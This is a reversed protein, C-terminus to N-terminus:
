IIQASPVYSSHSLSQPVMRAADDVQVERSSLTPLMGIHFVSPRRQLMSLVERDMSRSRLIAEELLEFEAPALEAQCVEAMSQDWQQVVKRYQLWHEEKPKCKARLDDRDLLSTDEEHAKIAKKLMLDFQRATLPAEHNMAAFKAGKPVYAEPRLLSQSGAPEPSDEKPAVSGVYFWKQRLVDDSIVSMRVDGVWQLHERLIDLGSATGSSLFLRMAITRRTGIKLGRDHGDDEGEEDKPAGSSKGRSRRQRKAPAETAYSEVDPHENYAQMMADLQRLLAAAAVPTSGIHLGAYEVVMGIWEVTNVPLAQAAQNQRAAQAILAARESGDGHLEFSTPIAMLSEVLDVVAPDKPPLDKVRHLILSWAVCAAVGRAAGDGFALRFMVIGEGSMDLTRSAIVSDVRFRSSLISRILRLVRINDPPGRWMSASDYRWQVVSTPHVGQMQADKPALLSTAWHTAEDEAMLHLHRAVGALQALVADPKESFNTQYERVFSSYPTRTSLLEADLVALDELLQKQFSSIDTTNSPTAKLRRQKPAM